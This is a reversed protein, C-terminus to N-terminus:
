AVGIKVGTREMAKVYMKRMVGGPTAPVFVVSDKNDEGKRKRFWDVKGARRAKVREVKKWGKPRYLPEEGDADRKVMCDYASLASRVM